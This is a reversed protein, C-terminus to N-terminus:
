TFLQFSVEDGLGLRPGEDGLAAFDPVTGLLWWGGPSGAPYVGTYTGAMALAGAPVRARPSARRPLVLRPDIPGLYAFGPLFGLLQVRYSRALHIAVLESAPMGLTRAAEALDVGDYRVALRHQRPAGAATAPHPAALIGEVVPVTAGHVVAVHAETVIVDEVGPVALLAAALAAADAGV